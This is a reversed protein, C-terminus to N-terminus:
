DYKKTYFVDNVFDEFKERKSRNDPDEASDYVIKGDVVTAVIGAFFVDDIKANMLDTDVITMNGIKGAELTGLKDEQHWMYAVNKTLGALAQERTIIEKANSVSDPGGIGEVVGAPLGRTVASYVSM